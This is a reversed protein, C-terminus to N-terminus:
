PKSLKTSKSSALVQGFIPQGFFGLGLSLGEWWGCVCVVRLSMNFSLRLIECVCVYVELACKYALYTSDKKQLKASFKLTGKTQNRCLLFFLLWEWVRLSRPIFEKESCNLNLCLGFYVAVQISQTSKGDRGVGLVGEKRGRLQDGEWGCVCMCVWVNMIASTFRTNHTRSADLM